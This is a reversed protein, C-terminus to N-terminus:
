KQYCPTEQTRAQTTALPPMPPPLEFGSPYRRTGRVGSGRTKKRTSDDARAARRDSIRMPAIAVPPKAPQSSARNIWWHHHFDEPKLVHQSKSIDVLKHVCPIGMTHAACTDQRIRRKQEM